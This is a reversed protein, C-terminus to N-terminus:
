SGKRADPTNNILSDKKLESSITLRNGKLRLYDIGALELSAPDNWVQVATAYGLPPPKFGM